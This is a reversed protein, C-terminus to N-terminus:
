QQLPPVPPQQLVVGEGPGGVVGLGVPPPQGVPRVNSDQGAGQGVVGQGGVAATRAVRAEARLQRTRLVVVLSALLALLVASEVYESGIRSVGKGVWGALDVNRVWLLEVHMMLQSPGLNTLLSSIWSGTLFGTHPPELVLIRSWIWDFRSPLAPKLWLWADHISLWIHALTVPLAADPLIHKAMDYFRRALTLDQPLGAGFEHMFGLNFM